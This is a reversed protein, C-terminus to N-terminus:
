NTQLFYKYGINAYVAKEPHYYESIGNYDKIEDNFPSLSDKYSVKFKINHIDLFDIDGGGYISYDGHDNRENAVATNNKINYASMWDYGWDFSGGTFFSM